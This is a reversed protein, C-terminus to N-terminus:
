CCRRNNKESEEIEASTKAEEAALFRAIEEELALDERAIQEQVSIDIKEQQEKLAKEKAAKEKAAKEKAAKEKAAKEKAKRELEAEQDLNAARRRIEALKKQREEEAKVQADTLKKQKKEEEKVLVDIDEQNEQPKQIDIQIEIKKGTIKEILNILGFSAVRLVKEINKLVFNVAVGLRTKWDGDTFNEITETLNRIKRTIETRIFSGIRRFVSEGGGITIVFKEWAGRLIDAEKQATKMQDNFADQVLISSQQSNNLDIVNQEIEALAEANLGAIGKFATINPILDSLVNNNGEYAASVELLKNLLGDQKIATIGTEIKLKSFIKEAEEGPSILSNMVSALSTASEATSGIFKTLGAFTGFLENVPIDASAATSALKGINTALLGVDTKGKVQAAFFANLIDTTSGAEDKYAGMVNTAGDVVSSLDANGAIALRAGESLFDTAGAADGTASIYDFLAKNVDGIKLGFEDIIDIAGERLIEGFELKQGEDLLTLVNTFTKEFERNLEIADRIKGSLESVVQTVGVYGLALSGLQKVFGQVGRKTNELQRSFFGGSEDLKKLSANLDAQTQLLEKGRASNEREEESLARWQLRAKKLQASLQDYSGNASNVIQQNLKQEKTLKRLLENKKQIQKQFKISTKNVEEQAAKDKKLQKTQEKQENRLELIAIRTDDIKKQNVDIEILIRKEEDAM